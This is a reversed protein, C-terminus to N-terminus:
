ILEDRVLRQRVKCAECTNAGYHFGSAKEACIRCPPLMPELVLFGNSGNEKSIKRRNKVPTRSELVVTADNIDSSSDESLTSGTSMILLVNRILVAEVTV